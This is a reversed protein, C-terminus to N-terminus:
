IGGSSGRLTECANDIYNSIFNSSYNNCYGNFAYPGWAVRGVKTPILSLTDFVNCKDNEVLKYYNDCGILLEVNICDSNPYKALNSCKDKLNNIINNYGPMSIKPLSEYCIATINVIGENTNINIPYTKHIRSIGEGTM